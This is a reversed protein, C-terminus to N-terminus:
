SNKRGAPAIGTAKASFFVQNDKQYAGVDLGTFEVEVSGGEPAEMIQKGDIRVSLKDLNHSVLAVEYRYGTITDTRKGDKYEYAPQVDTLLKKAGLSAVDIKVDRISLMIEVKRRSRHDPAAAM